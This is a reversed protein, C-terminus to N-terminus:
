LSLRSQIRVLATYVEYINLRRRQNNNTCDPLPTLAILLCALSSMGRCAYHQHQYEHLLAVRCQSPTPLMNEEWLCGLREARFLSIIKEFGKGTRPELHTILQEFWLHELGHLPPLNQSGFLATYVGSTSAGCSHSSPFIWIVSYSLFHCLLQFLCNGKKKKRAKNQVPHIFKKGVMLTNKWASQLVAPSLWCNSLSSFLVLLISLSLISCLPHASPSLLSCPLSIPVPESLSTERPSTHAWFRLM